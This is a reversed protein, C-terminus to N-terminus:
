KKAPSSEQQKVLLDRAQDDLGFREVYTKIAARSQAADGTEHLALALNALSKADADGRATRRRLPSVARAYDGLDLFHSALFDDVQPPAQGTAAAAEWQAVAQEAKGQDMLIQGLLLKARSATTPDKADALSTAVLAAESSDGAEYLAQARRYRLDASLNVDSTSAAAREYWQAADRLNGVDHHLQALLRPLEPQTSGLAVATQVLALAEKSKGAQVQLNGLRVLPAPDSSYVKSVDTLTSQAEEIRGAAILLDALHLQVERTAPAVLTSLKLSEAAAAPQQSRSYISALRGLIDAGLRGRAIAQGYAQRAKDLQGLEFYAHGLFRYADPLEPSKQLVQEFAQAAEAYRSQNFLLEAARVEREDAAAMAPAAYLVIGSFWVAALYTLWRRMEIQGRDQVASNKNRTGEGATWPAASTFIAL